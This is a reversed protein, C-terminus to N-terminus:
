CMLTCRRSVQSRLSRKTQPVTTQAGRVIPNTSRGCVLAEGGVEAATADRDADRAPPAPRVSRPRCRVSIESSSRAPRSGRKAVISFSQRRAPPRRRVHETLLGPVVLAAPKVTSSGGASQPRRGRMVWGRRALKEDGPGRDPSSFLSAPRRRSSMSVRRPAPDHRVSGREAVPGGKGGWPPKGTRTQGAEGTPQDVPLDM